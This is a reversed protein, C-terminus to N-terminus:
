SKAPRNVIDWGLQSTLRTMEHLKIGSADAANGALARVYVGEAIAASRFMAFGLHFQWDPVHSRGSHRCYIELCESEDMLGLAALDLGAYGSHSSVPIVPMHFVSCCYALDALPHGLTSLEWDLVALVRPEAPHLMLNGLRFDGHVITSEDSTPMNQELWDMLSIMAPLKETAISDYQQRWRRIQRAIYNAPRGYDSLGLAAVDVAHLAGIAQFVGAQVQRREAQTFEPMTSDSVIRGNLYEMVYFETGIIGADTAYHLMRAVPVDSEALAKQIRYERDIQHASPLLHGPPKKRLVYAPGATEILFTPNSQGGQFQRLRYPGAFEPLHSQLYAFLAAEDFRHAARPPILHPADAIDARM